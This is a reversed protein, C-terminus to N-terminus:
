GRRLNLLRIQPLSSPHLSAALPLAGCANRVAVQPLSQPNFPGLGPTEIALQLFLKASHTKVRGSQYDRRAEQISELYESSTAALLGELFNERESKGMRKVAAIIEGPKVNVPRGRAAGACRDALRRCSSSYPARAELRGAAASLITAYRAAILVALNLLSRVAEESTRLQRAIAAVRRIM